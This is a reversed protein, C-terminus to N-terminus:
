EVRLRHGPSVSAHPWRGGGAAMLSELGALVKWGM